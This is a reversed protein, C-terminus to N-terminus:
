DCSFHRSLCKCSRGTLNTCCAQPTCFHVGPAHLKVDKPRTVGDVGVFKAAHNPLAQSIILERKLLARAADPWWSNEACNQAVKNTAREPRPTKSRRRADVLLTRSAVLRACLTETTHGRALHEIGHHTPAIQAPYAHCRGVGPLPLRSSSTSSGCEHFISACCDELRRSRNNGAELRVDVKRWTAYAMLPM